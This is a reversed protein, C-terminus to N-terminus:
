YDDAVPLLVLPRLLKSAAPNKNNIQLLSTWEHAAVNMGMIPEKGPHNAVKM